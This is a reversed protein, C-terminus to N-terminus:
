QEMRIVQSGAEEQVVVELWELEQPEVEVLQIVLDRQQIELVKRNVTVTVLDGVVVLTLAPAGEVEQDVVLGQDGASGQDVVM